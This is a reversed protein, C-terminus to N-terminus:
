GTIQIDVGTLYSADDSLLFTVPGIVEDILGYRRLPTSGVMQQAVVAPDKDYYQSDAAAQLEIQRTWMFGPGIFAPSVSNVRINHPAYDKAAIRTMHLVAAKSTGYAIMNPPGSHAAMSATNVIAGGGSEKM